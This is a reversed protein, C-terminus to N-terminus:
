REGGARREIPVLDETKEGAAAHALHIERAVQLEAPPDGQLEEPLRRRRPAARERPEEELGARGRGETMGVDHRHLRDALRRSARIEREFVQFPLRQPLAQGLPPQRQALRDAGPERDGLGQGLRVAM